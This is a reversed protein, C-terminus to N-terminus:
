GDKRPPCALEVAIRATAHLTEAPTDARAGLALGRATAALMAATARLRDPLVSRADAVLCAHLKEELIEFKRRLIARLHRDTGAADALVCAVLCGRTEPTECVLKVMDEFFAGIEAPANGRASLNAMVVGTRTAAYHDLSALFLGKKDGFRHYLSARPMQMQATLRGISSGVYGRAWFCQMAAELVDHDESRRPRGPPRKITTASASSLLASTM